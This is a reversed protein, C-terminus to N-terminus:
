GIWKKEAIKIAKANEEIDDSENYGDYPAEPDVPKQKKFSNCVHDRHLFVKDLNKSWGTHGTIVKPHLGRSETM